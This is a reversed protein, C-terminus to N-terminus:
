KLETMIKRTASKRLESNAGIESKAKSILRTIMEHNIGDILEKKEGELKSQLDKKIRAIVVQTEEHQLKAFSVTDLDYEAVIRAIESDLNKMKTRLLNLKEEAEKSQKEASTVLWKIEDAKKDFM